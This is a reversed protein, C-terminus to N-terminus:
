FICKECFDNKRDGGSWFRDFFAWFLGFIALFFNAGCNQNKTIPVLGRREPRKPVKPLMKRSKTESNYGNELHSGNFEAFNRCNRFQWFKAANSPDGVFVAIVRFRFTSFHKWSIGLILVGSIESFYELFSSLISRFVRFFVGWFCSGLLM